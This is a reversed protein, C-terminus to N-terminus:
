WSSDVLEKFVTAEVIGDMRSIAELTAVFPEQDIGIAMLAEGGLGIRGVTMFSINVPPTDKDPLARFPPSTLRPEPSPAM